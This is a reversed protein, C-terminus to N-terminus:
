SQRPCVYVITNVTLTLRKLECPPFSLSYYKKRVFFMEALSHGVDNKVAGILRVIRVTKELINLLGKKGTRVSVSHLDNRHSCNFSGINRLAFTSFISRKKKKILNICQSFRHKLTLKTIVKTYRTDTHIPTHANVPMRSPLNFEAKFEAENDILLMSLKALVNQRQGRGTIVQGTVALRLGTDPYITLHNSSPM